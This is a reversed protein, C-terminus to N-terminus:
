QPSLSEVLAFFERISSFIAEPKLDPRGPVPSQLISTPFSTTVGFLPIRALLAAEMGPPSDEIAFCDAPEIDLCGAAFLYPTPDPKAVGVDERSVIVDFWPTLGLENLVIHLERKRANSVVGTRIGHQRLFELGERVGPYPQLGQKAAALFHDNKRQVLEPLRSPDWGPEFEDLLTTLIQPATKGVMAHIRAHLQAETEPLGLEKMLLKWAAEHMPESAVLVGDHDFLIAKPRALERGTFPSRWSKSSM